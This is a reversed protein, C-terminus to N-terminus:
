KKAAGFDALLESNAIVSFAGAFREESLGALAARAVNGLPVPANEAIASPMAKALFSVPGLALNLPISVNGIPTSVTRAGSVAGPKLVVASREVASAAFGEAAKEARMKGEFYGSSVSALASPMQASVLVARSVGRAEAEALATANADGNMRLATAKDSILDPLPPSGVACVLAQVDELAKEYAGADCADGKVWEVESAWAAGPSHPVGRRSLCRVAWGKALAEQAIASGVFGPGVILLRSTM